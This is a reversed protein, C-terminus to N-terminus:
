REEGAGERLAELLARMGRVLADRDQADMRGAARRLLSGSLVENEERLVAEGEPSLWVLHRRRDREDPLRQLLGQAELRDLRDSMASQSRDFHRAAETVTLPGSDRLHQLLAVAEGGPRPRRPDRRRYAHRYVAVTLEAFANATDAADMGFLM